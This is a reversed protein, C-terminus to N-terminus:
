SSGRRRIFVGAAVLVGLAGVVGAGILAPSVAPAQEAAPTSPAPSAPATATPTPSTLRPSTGLQCREPYQLCIIRDEGRYVYEDDNILLSPDTLGDRYDSREAPTPRFDPDGKDILPSEASLGTPDNAVLAVADLSGWGTMRDWADGDRDATALLSNLLQNGTAEPWAQMALALAGTVMPASYSTGTHNRAIRTLKGGTGPERVTIDTGPAMLTLGVGYDSFTARNGQLDTAGVGVVLNAGASLLYDENENGVAALVPVGLLDARALAYGSADMVADISITILDAGDNLAQNILFDYSSYQNKRCKENLEDWQQTPLDYVTYSAKPAWGYDPSALLSAIATGHATHQPSSPEKCYDKVAVDAGALEPVSLDAPGDIIAIKVGSGDLGSARLTDLGSVATHPQTRITDAGHAPAAGGFGAAATLLFALVTRLTRRHPTM